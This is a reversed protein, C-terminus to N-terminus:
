LENQFMSSVESSSNERMQEIEEDDLEIDIDADEGNEKLEEAKEEIRERSRDAGIEEMKMDIATEAEEMTPSIDDTEPSMIRDRVEEGIESFNINQGKGEEIATINLGGKWKRLKRVRGMHTLFEKAKIRAQVEVDEAMETHFFDMLQNDATNKQQLEKRQRQSLLQFEKGIGLMESLHHEIEEDFDEPTYGEVEWKTMSEVNKEIEKLDEETLAKELRPSAEWGLLNNIRSKVKPRIEFNM